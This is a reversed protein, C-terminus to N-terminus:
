ANIADVVEQIADADSRQKLPSGYCKESCKDAWRRIVENVKGAPVIESWVVRKEGSIITLAQGNDNIKGEDITSLRNVRGYYYNKDSCLVEIIFDDKEAPCAFILKESTNLSYKRNLQKELIEHMPVKVVMGSEYVLIMYGLEDEEHIALTLETDEDGYPNNARILKNHKTFHIFCLPDIYGDEYDYIINKRMMGTTILPKAPEEEVYSTKAAAKNPKSPTKAKPVEAIATSDTSATETASVEAKQANSTLTSKKLTAREEALKRQRDYQVLQLEAGEILRKTAGQRQWFEGNCFIDEASPEIVLQFIDGKTATHIFKEHVKSSAYMGMTRVISNRVHIAFKDETNFFKFDNTLGSAYGADNVGIYLVGGNANLMACISQMITQTQANLDPKMNNDPPYVISTKFEKSESEMGYYETEIKEENFNLMELVQKHIANRQEDLQMGELQNYAMVLRALKGIQNMSNVKAIEWLKDDLDKRGLHSMVKLETYAKGVARYKRAYKQHEDIEARSITKDKLLEHTMMILQCRESFYEILTKDDLIRAMLYAMRLANYASIRDKEFTIHRDINMLIEHMEVSDVCEEADRVTNIFTADQEESEEEEIAISYLLSHFADHGNFREGTYIDKFSGQVMGTHSQVQVVNMEVYNGPQLVLVGDKEVEVSFGYESVGVYSDPREGLIICVVTSNFEINDTVFNNVIERLSFVYKYQANTTSIGIVKARLLFPKGTDTNIFSQVDAQHSDYGVINQTYLLGEGEFYEDDIVCTFHNQSYLGKVRILVEDGINPAQKKTRYVNSDEERKGSLFICSEVRNWAENYPNLSNTRGVNFRCEDKDFCVQFDIAHFMGQPLINRANVSAGTPVISVSSGNLVISAASGEFVKASQPTDSKPHSLERLALMLTEKVDNWSFHLSVDEDGTLSLLANRLLEDSQVGNILTLYRLMLAYNERVNITEDGEISLLLQVAIATVVTKIRKVESENLIYTWFNIESKESLIFTQIQEIFASRFPEEMWVNRGGKIIVELLTEMIEFYVQKDQQNDQSSNLLCNMICLQSEPHYLYHSSALKNLLKTVYQVKEGRELIRAAEVCASLVEADKSLRNQITIRENPPLSTLVDTDELVYLNARLALSIYDSKKKSNLTPIWRPMNQAIVDFVTFIWRWNYNQYEDIADSFEDRNLYDVIETEQKKSVKLETFIDSVDVFKVSQQQVTSPVIDEVHELMPMPSNNYYCVKCRVRQKDFYYNDDEYRTMRLILGNEDIVGYYNRNSASSKITFEHIEDQKYLEQTVSVIDQGIYPEGDQVSHVICDIESPIARQKQYNFMKVKRPVGDLDVIFYQKAGQEETGTVRLRFKDGKNYSM